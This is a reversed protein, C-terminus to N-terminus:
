HGPPGSEASGDVVRRAQDPLDTCIGDVGWDILRRMRDTDNCTWVNVLLGVGHAQEVVARDVAEVSPHLARHGGEVTAALAADDVGEVLYATALAPDACARVAAISSLDFSSILWNSMPEARDALVEVVQRALRRDRDFDPDRRSNKVELNVWAGACADLAETLGPVSAPLDRRPLDIIARGDPLHADHHVVLEGDGTRRVDFEIGDAGMTVALRFADITNEAVHASAGRHAIVAPRPATLVHDTHSIM